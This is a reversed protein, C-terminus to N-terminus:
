PHVTASVKTLKFLDAPAQCHQCNVGPVDPAQRVVNAPLPQITAGPTPTGHLASNLSLEPTLVPDFVETNFSDPVKTSPFANCGNVFTDGTCVKVKDAPVWPLPYEINHVAVKRKGTLEEMMLKFAYGSVNIPDGSSIGDLGRKRLDANALALRFGNTNEGTVPVLKKQGSALMAAVIGDEGNEGFIADVDPHAALAKATEQQTTQSNWMGYYEAVIKIGPYKRFVSMAGDYNMKDVSNGAVGRDIFVNGKGNLKNVLWQATNPAFGATIYSVTRACPETVTASYTYVLVHKECAEHIARNLGTSSIPFTIIADAGASVMSQYAAAQAQVDTGSIVTKLDVLKDYPPTAALAKILNSTETQYGNGSYSMSLYIKYKKPPTQAQSQVASGALMAVTALAFACTKLSTRFKM